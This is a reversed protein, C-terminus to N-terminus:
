TQESASSVGSVREAASRKVVSAVNTPECRKSWESADWREAKSRESEKSAGHM